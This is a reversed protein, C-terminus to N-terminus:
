RAGALSGQPSLAGMVAQYLRVPAAARPLVACVNEPM